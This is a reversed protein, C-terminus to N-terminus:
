VGRDDAVGYVAPYDYIQTLDYDFMLFFRSYTRRLAVVDAPDLNDVIRLLMEDPM